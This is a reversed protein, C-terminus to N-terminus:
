NPIKIDNAKAEEEYKKRWKGEPDYKACLENWIDPKHETLFKITKSTGKKQAETCKACGTQLADTMHVKLEKGEATCKGKDLLCEVYKELLRENELIEDININDYKDTYTEKDEDALVVVATCLLFFLGKSVMTILKKIDCSSQTRHVSVSSM